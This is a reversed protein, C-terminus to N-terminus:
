FQNGTYVCFNRINIFRPSVGILFAIIDTLSTISISGGCKELTAGMQDEVSTEDYHEAWESMFVFMCDIGV